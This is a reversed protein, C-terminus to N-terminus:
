IRVESLRLGGPTSVVIIAFVYRHGYAPVVRLAFYKVFGGVARHDLPISRYSSNILKRANGARIPYRVHAHFPTSVLPNMRLELTPNARIGMLDFTLGNIQRDAPGLKFARQCDLGATLEDYFQDNRAGGCRNINLMCLDLPNLILRKSDTEQLNSLLFQILQFLQDIFVERAVLTVDLDAGRALAREFELAAYMGGFGGGLIVVRPKGNVM